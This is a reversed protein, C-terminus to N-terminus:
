NFICEEFREFTERAQIKKDKINTLWADARESFAHNNPRLMNNKEGWLKM